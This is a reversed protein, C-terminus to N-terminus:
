LAAGQKRQQADPGLKAWNERIAEMFADDWSAYQYGKAACKRKFAELHEDLRDHHNEAAWCRVRDTIAFDPPLSHKTSARKRAPSEGEERREERSRALALVNSADQKSEALVNSADQEPILFGQAILLRLDPKKELGLKRQLFDPDDPVKGDNQSAFLWILILAAKATDPIRAFGYDDLLARHLKIWPPNRDKYHQFEQWNKVSLMATM